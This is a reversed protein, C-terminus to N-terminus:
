VGTLDSRFRQRLSQISTAYSKTDNYLGNAAISGAGQYYRHLAGGVNGNTSSLLHRLYRASMRINHEAVSARLAPGGAQPGILDRKIYAATAPMLQGVGVAGTSSIRAQNWGSELYLTAELLDAPLKNRAAWHRIVPRLHLREPSLRISAPLGVRHPPVRLRTGVDVLDRHRVKPNAEILEALSVDFRRSLQTLNDGARVVYTQASADTAGFAPIPSLGLGAFAVGAMAATLVVAGFTRRSM